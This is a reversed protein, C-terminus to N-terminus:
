PERFHEVNEGTALEERFVKGWTMYPVYFMCLCKELELISKWSTGHNRFNEFKMEPLISERELNKIWNKKLM